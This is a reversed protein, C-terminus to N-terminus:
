AALTPNRFGDCLHIPSLKLKETFGAIASLITWCEWIAGEDGLYLHDAVFVSDFGIKEALMVSEKLETWGLKRYNPTRFFVMGPNAFIPLCYGFKITKSM